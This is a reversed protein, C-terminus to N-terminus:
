KNYINLLVSNLALLIYAFYSRLSKIEWLLFFGREFIPAFNVGELLLKLFGFVEFGVGEVISRGECGPSRVVAVDCSSGDLIHDTAPGRLGPVVNLASEPPVAVAEWHLVLDVLFELDCVLFLHEFHPDLLVVLLAPVDDHPVGALPLGHDVAEAPPDVEAVVVLGHVEAEHLGHPVDELHEEFLSEDVAAPADHGVGVGAVGDEGVELYLLVVLLNGVGGDM